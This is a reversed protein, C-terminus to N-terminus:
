WSISASNGDSSHGCHHAVDQVDEDGDVLEDIGQDTAVRVFGDGRGTPDTLLLALYERAEKSWDNVEDESGKAGVM